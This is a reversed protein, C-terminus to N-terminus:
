YPYGYADFDERYYEFILDRMEQTYQQKPHLDATSANRHQLDCDFEHKKSFKKWDTDLNEFRLVDGALCKGSKDCLWRTQPIFWILSGDIMNRANFPIGTKQFFSDTRFEGDRFTSVVWDCFSKNLNALHPNKEGSSAREKRYRYESFVRDYPNRIVAFLSHASGNDTLWSAATQHGAVVINDKASAILSTGANKSIHIFVPKM